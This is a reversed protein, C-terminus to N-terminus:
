AGSSGFSRPLRYTCLIRTCVHYVCAVRSIRFSSALEWSKWAVDVEILRAFKSIMGMYKTSQLSGAHRGTLDGVSILSSIAGWESRAHQCEELQYKRMGPESALLQQLHGLSSCNIQTNSPDSCASSNSLCIGAAKPRTTRVTYSFAMRCICM